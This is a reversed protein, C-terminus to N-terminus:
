GQPERTEQGEATGEQSHKFSPVIIAAKLHGSLFLPM